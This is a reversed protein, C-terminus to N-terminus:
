FPASKCRRLRHAEETVDYTDFDIFTRVVHIDKAVDYDWSIEPLATKMERDINVRIGSVEESADCDSSEKMPTTKLQTRTKATRAIKAAEHKMRKSHKRAEAKQRLRAAECERAQLAEAELSQRTELYHEFANLMLSFTLRAVHKWGVRLEPSLDTQAVSVSSHSAMSAISAITEKDPRTKVAHKVIHDLAGTWSAFELTMQVTMHQNQCGAGELGDLRLRKFEASELTGGRLVGTRLCLKTMCTGALMECSRVAWRAAGRICCAEVRAEPALASWITRMAALSKRSPWLRVTPMEDLAEIAHLLLVLEGSRRLRCRKIAQIFLLAYLDKRLEEWTRSAEEGKKWRTTSSLMFADFDNHARSILLDCNLPGTCFKLSLRASRPRQMKWELQDLGHKRMEAALADSRKAAGDYAKGLEVKLLAEEIKLHLLEDDGDLTCLEQREVPSAALWTERLLVADSASPFPTTM